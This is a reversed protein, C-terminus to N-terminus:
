SGDDVLRLWVEIANDSEPNTGPLCMRQPRVFLQDLGIQDEVSAILRPAQDCTNFEVLLLQYYRKEPRTMYNVLRDLDKRSRNDLGRGNYRFNFTMRWGSVTESRYRRAVEPSAFKESKVDQEEANLSLKVFGVDKVHTQAADTQVFDLFPRVHGNAPEPAAYLYLRRSLPYEEVAVNFVAPSIGAAGTAPKVALANSRLIYPLGTFGIASRDSSVAKSLDANSEYRKARSSLPTKRLVLHKFTDYTGSKDDRAYVTIPGPRGGFAAWDSVKGSFVGRLQDIDLSAIPNRPHVIVAIGDMAIVHESQVATMDGLRLLQKVEKDKIQRSAMAIDCSEANLDKFGTSSGHAHIEIGLVSGDCQGILTSENPQAGPTRSISDCGLRRLYAEALRPALKAGITNSGHLRLIQQVPQPHVQADAQVAAPLLYSAVLLLLPLVVFRKVYCKLM